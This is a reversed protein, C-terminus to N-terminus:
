NTRIKSNNLGFTFFEIDQPRESVSQMLIISYTVILNLMTLATTPKIKYFGSPCAALKTQTLRDLFIGVVRKEEPDVPREASGYEFEDSFLTVTLVLRNSSDRLKGMFFFMFLYRLINTILLPLYYPLIRTKMYRKSRHRIETLFYHVICCSNCLLLGQCAIVIPGFLADARAIMM